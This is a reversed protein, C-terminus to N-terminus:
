SRTTLYGIAVGLKGLLQGHIDRGSRGQGIIVARIPTEEMSEM